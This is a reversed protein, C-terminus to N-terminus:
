GQGEVEGALLCSLVLCSSVLCVLCSLVLRSLVLHAWLVLCGVPHFSTALAVM